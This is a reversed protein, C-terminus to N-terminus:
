DNLLDMYEDIIEVMEKEKEDGGNIRDILGKKNINLYLEKLKNFKNKKKPKDINNKKINKLEDFFKLLQTNKEKSKLYKDKEIEINNNMSIPISTIQKTKIDENLNNINNNKNEEDSIQKKLTNIKQELLKNENYLTNYKQNQEKIEESCKNIKEKLDKINTIKQNKKNIIISKNNNDNNNVESLENIKEKLKNMIDKSEKLKNSLIEKEDNFAKIKSKFEDINQFGFLSKIININGNTDNMNKNDKKERIYSLSKELQENIKDLQNEKEKLIKIKKKILDNQQYNSNYESENTQYNELLKLKTDNSTKLENALYNSYSYLHTINSERENDFISNSNNTNLNVNTGSYFYNNNKNNRITNFGTHSYYPSINNISNYNSITSALSANMSNKKLFQKKMITNDNISKSFLNHSTNNISNNNFSNNLLNKDLSISELNKGTSKNRQNVLISNSQNLTSNPMNCNNCLYNFNSNVNGCQTCKWKNTNRRNTTTMYGNKKNMLFFSQNLNNNNISNYNSITPNSLFLAQQQYKEYDINVDDRIELNRRLDCNSNNLLHKSKQSKEKNNVPSFVINKSIKNNQLIKDTDTAKEKKYIYKKSLNKKLYNKPRGAGKNSINPKPSKSKLIPSSNM